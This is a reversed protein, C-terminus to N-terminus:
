SIRKINLVMTTNRSLKCCFLIASDKVKGLGSLVSFMFYFREASYKKLCNSIKVCFIENYPPFFNAIKRM